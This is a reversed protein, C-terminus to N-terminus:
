SARSAVRPHDRWAPMTAMYELTQREIEARPTDPSRRAQWATMREFRDEFQQLQGTEDTCNGCYRGTEIPMGCSECALANTMIKEKTLGPAAPSATAVSILSRLAGLLTSVQDSPMRSLAGALLDTSLVERQRRLSDQGAGTLWVLTRRRDAPDSLRELMGQRELHSVIESVVSQARSLHAAAEGVTFPGAHALHELVAL